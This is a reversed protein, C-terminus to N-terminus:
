FKKIRIRIRYRKSGPDPIPIRYPFFDSGPGPYVDPKKLNNCGAGFEFLLFVVSCNGEGGLGVVPSPPPSIRAHLSAFYVVQITFYYCKQFYTFLFITAKICINCFARIYFYFLNLFSYLILKSFFCIRRVKRNALLPTSTPKTGTNRIRLYKKSRM